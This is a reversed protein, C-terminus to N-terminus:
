PGGTEPSPEHGNVGGFAVGTSDLLAGSKAKAVDIDFRLLAQDVRDEVPDGPAVVHHVVEHRTAQM